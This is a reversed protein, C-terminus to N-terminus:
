KGPQWRPLSGLVGPALEAEVLQQIQQLDLLGSYIRGGIVVASTTNPVGSQHAAAIWQLTTSAMTARCASLTRGDVDLRAAIADILKDAPQKGTGKSLQGYVEKVWVWGPSPTLEGQHSGIAEACLAADGLLTLEAADDRDLEFWPAWVARVDDPYLRVQAEAIRLLNSCSWDNPRCLVALPVAGTAGPKGFGPLDALRLPPTALRREPTPRDSSSSSSQAGTPQTSTMADDDFADGLKAIAVGREIKDLARDYALEYEHELEAPTTASLPTKPPRANFLVSPPSSAHLRDYRRQNFDIADRYRDYQVALAVRRPDCGIRRALENLEEKKLTARQRALEDLMELFKGQANAELTASAVLQVSPGKLVRYVLRIRGPHREQLQQALRLSGLPLNPGPVFFLEITVLANAPGRTPANAPDRYEVRESHGAGPKNDGLAAGGAILLGVALARAAATM